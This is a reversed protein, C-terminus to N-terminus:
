DDEAQGQARLNLNKDRKQFDTMGQGSGVVGVKGGVDEPSKFISEKKRGTLFGAKKKSGKTQFQQWTNQKKNTMVELMEMRQKSKFAHIKRKKEVKVDESDEPKIRLKLPIEKKVLETRSAEELKRKLARRTEDAEREVAALAEQARKRADEESEEVRRVRTERVEHMQGGADRVVYGGTTVSDVVGELWESSQIGGAATGATVGWAAQVSTGVTIRASVAAAGGAAATAAAAALAAPDTTAASSAPVFAMPIFPAAAAEEDGEPPPEEQTQQEAANLLDETLEIVEKLGSAMEKYEDNDPDEARAAGQLHELEGPAGGREAHQRAERARPSFSPTLSPLGTPFSPLGPSQFFSSVPFPSSPMHPYKMSDAEGPAKVSQMSREAHQRSPRLALPLPSFPAHHLLQSIAPAPNPVRSKELEGVGRMCTMSGPPACPFPPLLPSPLALFSSPLPHLSTGRGAHEPHPPPAPLSSPYPPPSPRRHTSAPSPPPAPPAVNPAYSPVSQLFEPRARVRRDNAVPTIRTTM